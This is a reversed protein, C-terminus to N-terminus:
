QFAEWNVLLAMFSRCLLAPFEFEGHLVEFIELASFLEVTLM